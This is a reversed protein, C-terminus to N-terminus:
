PASYLTQGGRLDGWVEKGGSGHVRVEAHDETQVGVGGIQVRVSVPVCMMSFVENDDWERRRAAGSTPGPFHSVDERDILKRLV